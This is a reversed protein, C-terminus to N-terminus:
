LRPTANRLMAESAAEIAARQQPTATRTLEALRQSFSAEVSGTDEAAKTAARNRTLKGKCEATRQVTVNVKAAAPKRGRPQKPPSELKLSSM